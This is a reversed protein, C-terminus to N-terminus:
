GSSLATIKSRRARAGRSEAERQQQPSREYKRSDTRTALEKYKEPVVDSLQTRGSTDVRRCMPTSQALPSFMNCEGLLHDTLWVM